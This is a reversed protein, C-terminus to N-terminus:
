KAHFVERAGLAMTEEEPMYSIKFGNCMAFHQFFQLPRTGDLPIVDRDVLNDINTPFEERLIRDAIHFMTEPNNSRDHIEAMAELSKAYFTILRAEAEGTNRTHVHRFNQSYKEAKTHSALIAHHQLKGISASSGDDAIKELLMFYMPAIRVKDTTTVFKGGIGRYTIPGYTQPFERELHLVVDVDDVPNDIPMQPYIGDKLVHWLHDSRAERTVVKQSYWWYQRPSTIAYFHLLKNYLAEFLGDDLYRVQESTAVRKPDRVMARLTKTADRAAAAFYPTYSRGWNSRAVTSNASTIIEARNGGIDVPMDEDEWVQVIVGKKIDLEYEWAECRDAYSGPTSRCGGQAKGM